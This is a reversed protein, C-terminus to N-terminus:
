ALHLIAQVARDLHEWGWAIELQKTQCQHLLSMTNLFDLELDNTEVQWRYWSKHQLLRELSDFGLVNSSLSLKEAFSKQESLMLIHTIPLPSGSCPGTEALLLDIGPRARTYTGLSNTPLNNLTEPWILMRRYQPSVRWDGNDSKNIRLLSDALVQFGYPLLSAALTSKGSAPAGLILIQRAGDTVAAGRLVTEGQLHMAMPLVMQLTFLRVSREDVSDLATVTIERALVDIYWSGYQELQWTAENEGLTVVPSQYWAKKVTKAIGALRVVWDPPVVAPVQELEPFLLESEIRLGCYLYQTVSSNWTSM